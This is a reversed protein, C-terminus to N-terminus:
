LVEEERLCCGIPFLALFFSVQLVVATWFWDFAASGNARHWQVFDRGGGDITGAPVLEAAPVPSTQPAPAGSKRATNDQTAATFFFDM